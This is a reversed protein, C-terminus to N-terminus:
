IGKLIRFMKDTYPSFELSQTLSSRFFVRRLFNSCLLSSRVRCFLVRICVNSLQFTIISQFIPHHHVFLVKCYQVHFDEVVLHFIYLQVIHTQKLSRQMGTVFIYEKDMMVFSVFNSFVSGSWPTSSSWFNLLQTPSPRQGLKSIM